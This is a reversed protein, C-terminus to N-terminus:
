AMLLPPTEEGDNEAQEQGNGGVDANEDLTKTAGGESDFLDLASDSAEALAASPVLGVALAASVTTALVKQKM